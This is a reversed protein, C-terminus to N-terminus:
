RGTWRPARKEVFARPGEQFDETLKMRESAARSLRWLTEEDLEAAQRAIALSERVAIPANATVKRALARAAELVEAAPVVANVLGHQLATAASIPEGTAIMHLAVAKPLARPLRFVGGAAAVLSRKVEPLGFTAGEAAIALDCALLLELGGALAHGQAAAIWLKTRRARTFGGFGGRETALSASQGASVAKLDAGACFAHPGAGTLVVAWLEPDAEVRDVAAELGAAVAGNVANRAEPRNITVLAVHPEAIEFLVAETM